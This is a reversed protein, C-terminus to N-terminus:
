WFRAGVTASWGPHQRGLGPWQQRRQVIGVELLWAIHRAHPDDADFPMEHHVGIGILGVTEHQMRRLVATSRQMFQVREISAVAYVKGPSRVALGGGWWGFPVVVSPRINVGHVPVDVGVHIIPVPGFTFSLARDDAARVSSATFVFAFACVLSLSYKVTIGGLIFSYSHM